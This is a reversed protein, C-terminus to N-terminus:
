IEGLTTVEIRCAPCIELREALSNETGQLKAKLRDMMSKPAVPNGCRRCKVVSDQFLVSAGSGIRDLELIHELRLCGEPCTNVCMGCAVCSDHQFLLQYENSDDSTLITLANTPCNIACLGCGTCQTDDLRVKGFPVAGDSITGELSHTLKNGLGGILAPLLLRNTPVSTYEAVKLPTPKARAIEHAFQELELETYTQGNGGV